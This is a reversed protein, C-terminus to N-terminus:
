RPKDERRLEVTKRRATRFLLAMRWKRFVILAIPATRAKITTDAEAGPVTEVTVALRLFRSSAEPGLSVTLPELPVFGTPAGPPPPARGEGGPLPLAVLGSWGAYFGGGGGLALAALALALGGKRRGSAAVEEQTADTM